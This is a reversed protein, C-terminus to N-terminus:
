FRRPEIACGRLFHIAPKVYDLLFEPFMGVVERVHPVHILRTKADAFLLRHLHKNVEILCFLLLDDCALLLPYGIDLADTGCAFRQSREQDELGFM